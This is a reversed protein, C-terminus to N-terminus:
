ALAKVSRAFRYVRRAGSYAGDAGSVIMEVHRQRWGRGSNPRAVLEAYRACLREPFDAAANNKQRRRVDLAARRGIQARLEPGEALRRMWRTAEDLDPEAWWVRRGVFLSSYQIQSGRVPVPAFPV